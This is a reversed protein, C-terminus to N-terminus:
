LSINAQLHVVAPRAPRRYPKQTLFTLQDDAQLLRVSPPLAIRSDNVHRAMQSQCFWDFELILPILKARLIWLGEINPHLWLYQTRALSM